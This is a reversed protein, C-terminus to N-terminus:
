PMSKNCNNFGYWVSNPLPTRYYFTKTRHYDVETITVSEPMWGDRGQRRLYIYCVGHGCPGQMKFTDTSCREFTGSSPDDLRAVHVENRHVDGFAISIYDRTYRPSSCSTKITVTYSCGRSLLQPQQVKFSPLEKPNPNVPVSDSSSLTFLLSLTFIITTTKSTLGM